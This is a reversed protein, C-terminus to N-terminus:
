QQESGDLWGTKQGGGRGMWSLYLLLQQKLSSSFFSKKLLNSSDEQRPSQLKGVAASFDTLADPQCLPSTPM